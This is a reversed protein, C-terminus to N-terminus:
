LSGGAGPGIETRSGGRICAHSYSTRSAQKSSLKNNKKPATAINNYFM